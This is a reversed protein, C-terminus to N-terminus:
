KIWDGASILLTALGVVFAGIETSRFAMVGFGFIGIIMGFLKLILGLSLKGKEDM